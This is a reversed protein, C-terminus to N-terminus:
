QQKCSIKKREDLIDYLRSLKLDHADLESKEDELMKKLVADEKMAKREADYLVQQEATRTRVGDVHPYHEVIYDGIKEEWLAELEIGKQALEEFEKELVEISVDEKEQVMFHGDVVRPEGNEDVVKSSNEYSDKADKLFNALKTDVYAHNAGTSLYTGTSEVSGEMNEYIAIDSISSSHFQYPTFSEGKKKSPNTRVEQATFRVYYEKGDISIKNLYHHYGVFNSSHDKHGDKKIEEEFFLPISENFLTPMKDMIIKVDVGKHRIIKGFANKVFDVKKGDIANEVQGIHDYAKRAEEESVVRDIIPTANLTEIMNWKAAKEWDGFWNKFANTRVQVWQKPSLKSPKGNPAKMYTGDAKAKAVIEEAEKDNPIQSVNDNGQDARETNQKRRQEKPAKTKASFDKDAVQKEESEQQTKDKEDVMKTEETKAEAVEKAEEAKAKEAELRKTEAQREAQINAIAKWHELEQKAQEIKAKHAKRAAIKEAPTKGQSIPEKEAKELDATKEKVMDKAVEHAM